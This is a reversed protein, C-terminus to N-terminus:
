RRTTRAAESQDFENALAEAILEALRRNGAASYHSRGGEFWYGAVRQPDSQFEARLAPFPDVTQWGAQRACEQVVALERPLETMSAVERLQPSLVFVGHVNDAELQRELRRMLRCSVDLPDPSGHEDGTRLGSWARPALQSMTRDILYSRGLIAKMQEFPDRLWVSIPVPVNNLRLADGEVTFFPRALGWVEASRMWQINVTGVGLLLMRPRELPLLQEARLVMQDLAYAVVAANDVPQGLLAELQAPWSQEDTSNLGETVSDGVAVLHGPRIGVQQASNRRIGYAVTHLDPSTYNDKLMWGLGSDYRVSERITGLNRYRFDSFDLLGVGHWARLGFECALLTLCTTVIMLAVNKGRESV